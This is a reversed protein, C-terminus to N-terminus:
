AGEALIKKLWDRGKPNDDREVQFPYRLGMNRPYRYAKDGSQNVYEESRYNVPKARVLGEVYKRKVTVPEGRPFLQTKGNVHIPVLQEANEDTSHHVVVTVLEEMFALAEAKKMAKPGDVIQIDTEEIRAEGEAPMTAVGSQGIQYDTADIAKKNRTVKAVNPM